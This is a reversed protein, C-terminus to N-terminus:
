YFDSQVDEKIRRAHITHISRLCNGIWYIVICIKLQSFKWLCSLDIQSYDFLIQFFKSCGRLSQLNFGISVYELINCVSRVSIDKGSLISLFALLKSINKFIDIPYTTYYNVFKQWIDRYIFIIGFFTCILYIIAHIYIYM